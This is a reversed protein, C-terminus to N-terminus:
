VRLSSIILCLRENCVRHALRVNARDVPSGGLSVPVVEDLEPAMPDGAPLSKDVPRGCIWCADEEALVRRRLERRRHGNAYRSRGSMAYGRGRAGRERRRGSVCSPASPQM